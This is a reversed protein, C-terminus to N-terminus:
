RSVTRVRFTREDTIRTVVLIRNNRLEMQSENLKVVFDNSSQRGTRGIKKVFRAPYHAPMILPHDNVVKQPLNEAAIINDIVDDLQIFIFNWESPASLINLSGQINIQLEVM